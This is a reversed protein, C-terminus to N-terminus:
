ENLTIQGTGVVRHEALGQTSSTLDDNITFSLSDNKTLRIVVGFTKLLDFPFQASFLGGGAKDTYNDAADAGYQLYDYNKRYRGLNVSVGDEFRVYCGNTLEAGNGYKSDDGATNTLMFVHLRKIDVPDANAGIRCYFTKSTGSADINMDVIGRIIQTGSVPLEMGILGDMIISNTTASLIKVQQTYNDYNILIFEGSGTFGHGASINLVDSDKAAPSTLVIDTKDETMFFRHFIATYQDQINVPVGGNNELGIHPKFGAM